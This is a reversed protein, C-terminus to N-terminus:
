GSFPTPLLAEIEADTLGLKKYATIKTLRLEEKAADEEIKIAALAAKDADYEAQEKDTLEREIIEGTEADNIHIFDNAM